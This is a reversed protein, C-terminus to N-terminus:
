RLNASDEVGKIQESLPAILPGNLLKSASSLLTITPGRQLIPVDKVSAWTFSRWAFVWCATGNLWATASIEFSSPRQGVVWSEHTM